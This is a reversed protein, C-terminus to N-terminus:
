FRHVSGYQKCNEYIYTPFLVYPEGEKRDITYDCQEIWTQREGSWWIPTGTTTVVFGHMVKNPTYQSGPFIPAKTYTSCGVLCVLVVLVSASRIKSFM